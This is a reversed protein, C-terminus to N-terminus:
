KTLPSPGAGSWDMLVTTIPSYPFGLWKLKGYDLYNLSRDRRIPILLLLDPRAFPSKSDLADM